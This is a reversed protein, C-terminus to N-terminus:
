PVNTHFNLYFAIDYWNPNPNYKEPHEVVHDNSKSFLSKSTMNAQLRENCMTYLTSNEVVLM